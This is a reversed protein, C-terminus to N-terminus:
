AYIFRVDEQPALVACTLRGGFVAGTDINIRRSSDGEIDPFGDNTPTHGHIVTWGELNTGQWNKTEFFAESRTWLHIAQRENPFENPSLGAHVFVRQEAEDILVSPLSQLWNLHAAPVTEYGKSHYSKLTEDGGNELWHQYSKPKEQTLAELMMAEHNGALAVQITNECRPGLMLREIVSASDPGRDVYDGLHVLYAAHDPYLLEHREFILDHMQFLREAEGHVDGIVYTVTPQM